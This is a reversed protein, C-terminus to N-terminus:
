IIPLGGGAMLKLLDDYMSSKGKSFVMKVYQPKHEGLLDDYM